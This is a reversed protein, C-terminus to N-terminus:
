LDFKQYIKVGQRYLMNKYEDPMHSDTAIASMNELSDAKFLGIKDFVTGEAVWIIDGITYEKLYNYVLIDEHANLTVGGKLDLGQVPIFAKNIKITPPQQIGQALQLTNRDYDVQGGVLIVRKFPDGRMATMVDLSNTLVVIENKQHLCGAMAINSPCRGLFVVDYNEVIDACMSGLSEAAASIPGFSFPSASTEAPLSAAYQASLTSNLVAGGHTRKLFGDKELKEFDRRITIESVNLEDSLEIVSVSKRASLIQQIRQLREVQFM